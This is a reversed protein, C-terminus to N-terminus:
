YSIAMLDCKSYAKHMDNIVDMLSGNDADYRLGYIGAHKPTGLHERILKVDHALSAEFNTICVSDSDCLNGISVGHKHVYAGIIGDATFSTGGCNTHHV